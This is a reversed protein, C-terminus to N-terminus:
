DRWKEPVSFVGLVMGGQQPDLVQRTTFHEGLITPGHGSAQSRAAEPKKEPAATKADSSRKTSDEGTAGKGTQAGASDSAAKEDSRTPAAMSILLGIVIAPLLNSKM